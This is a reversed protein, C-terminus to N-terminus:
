YLNTKCDKGADGGGVQLFAAAQVLLEIEIKVIITKEAVLWDLGGLHM